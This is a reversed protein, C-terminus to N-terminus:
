IRVVGWFNSKDFIAKSYRFTAIRLILWIELCYKINPNCMEILSDGLLYDFSSIEFHVPIM